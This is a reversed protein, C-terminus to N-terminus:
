ASFSRGERLCGCLEAYASHLRDRGPREGTARLIRRALVGQRFITELPEHWLPADLGSGALVTEALQWWLDRTQRSRQAIGFHALYDTDRITVEDADQICADFLRVLATQPMAQQAALPRWREAVLAQLTATVLAACALDAGPHEQTDLVRIEVANRDFRAIAGRSNLWEEQLLGQPDYPAIARYMPRLIRREYEARSSVTEPVVDGAIEPIRLQNGRYVQLRQDVTGSYAGDAFPSSAALAPLIPLLLRVAAHLRAFEADGAFPLNIHMSQLNAWGHGRCDFIRDYARYIEDDQPWLELEAHADMWPHMAGPMLRGGLPALLTEIRALNDAFAAPLTDLRPAPGNTKLEILHLALENSWVLRGNDFDGTPRGAAAALL